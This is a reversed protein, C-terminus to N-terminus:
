SNPAEQVSISPAAMAMYARNVLRGEQQDSGYGIRGSLLRDCAVFIKTVVAAALAAARTLPISSSFICPRLGYSHEPLLLALTMTFM